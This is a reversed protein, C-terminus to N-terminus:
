KNREHQEREDLIKQLDKLGIGHVSTVWSYSRHFMDAIEHFEVGNVYTQYLVNYESTPLQELTAIIESRTKMSEIVAQNLKEELTIYNLVANEIKNSVTNGGNSKSENSMSPTIHLALDKWRQIDELTNKIIADLKTIQMLYQKSKM